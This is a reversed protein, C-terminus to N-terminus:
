QSPKLDPVPPVIFHVNRHLTHDVTLRNFEFISRANVVAPDNVNNEPVSRGIRGWPRFHTQAM